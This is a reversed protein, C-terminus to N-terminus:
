SVDKITPRRRIVGQWGWLVSTIAIILLPGNMWPPLGLPGATWFIVCGALIAGHDERAPSKTDARLTLIGVASALVLTAIYLQHYGPIIAYFALASLLGLLVLLSSLILIARKIM